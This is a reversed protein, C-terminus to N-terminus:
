VEAAAPSTDWIMCQAGIASTLLEGLISPFSTNANFYAYFNPHQWHTIGKMIKEEFDTLIHDFDESSEPGAPPLSDYIEKPSVQSKVPYKEIGEYYDAIWDILKHGHKRFEETNM